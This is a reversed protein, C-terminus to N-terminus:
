QGLVRQPDTWEPELFGLRPEAFLLGQQLDCGLELLADRDDWAEVGEAIVRINLDRALVVLAAVLRQRVESARVGRVLSTDLKVFEPELLAFSSLGAYGAGLDDIAIRYGIKRLEAALQRAGFIEALMARETLELVVRPALKGLPSSADFLDPDALDQPHINVFLLADDDMPTFGKAALERARRGLDTLRGLKQAADLAAGPTPIVPQDTRLLAEYAFVKKARPNVIPQFAMWMTELARQFNLALGARDSAQAENEGLLRLAERKMRALAHLKAAHAVLNRLTTGEVPKTLYQMAGLRVAEVATEIAPEGTMLLVPVDLDYARVVSLLEVGSMGPMRIDSLVVDFPEHTLAEVAEAGDGATVVEYGARELLKTLSALVNADDDAVLVRTKHSKREVRESVRVSPAEAEFKAPTVCAMETTVPEPQGDKPQSEGAM